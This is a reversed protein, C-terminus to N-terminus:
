QNDGKETEQLDTSSDNSPMKDKDPFSNPTPFSWQKGENDIFAGEQWPRPHEETDGNTSTTETPYEVWVEIQKNDERYNVLDYYLETECEICGSSEGKYSDHLYFNNRGRTNTEKKPILRARWQGWGSM